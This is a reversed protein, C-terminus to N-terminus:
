YDPNWLEPDYSELLEPEKRYKQEWEVFGGRLIVVNQKKDTELKEQYIKASKPGRVQSLACHFIIKPVEKYQNLMDPIKEDLENSPINVAGPIHGGIFDDGRVDVILYDKGPIKTKDRVLVAVDDCEVYNPSTSM